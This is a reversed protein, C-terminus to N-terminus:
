IHVWCEGDRIRRISKRSVGFKRSLASINADQTLSKKICFVKKSTLKAQGNKEGIQKNNSIINGLMHHRAHASQSMIELNELRNDRGDGNKHHVVEHRTLKRGIHKEMLLRHEDICVGNIKLRKYKTM